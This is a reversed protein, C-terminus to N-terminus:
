GETVIRIAQEPSRAVDAIAGNERMKEMFHHQVDRLKGKENQRM